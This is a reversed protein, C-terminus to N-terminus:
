TRLYTAQLLRLMLEIRAQPPTLPGASPLASPKAGMEDVLVGGWVCRTSRLVAVGAAQARHLAAELARHVSANGTGAVVIGQVGAAVLADVVHGDAGAGSTVIEVWPWTATAFPESGMAALGAIPATGASSLASPWDRYRHLRGAVLAAVPGGDGADFADLRHSHVKRLDAGAFVRGGILALVGSALPDRALTVADLLNQPGDAQLSTAPRMAATLVVPKDKALVVRHLFYATEELTDTGHTIVIGAVEPRTLHATGRAALRCWIAFDMDKSDVQAVQEAEVSWAALAPVADVLSQVSRQAATYGLSDTASAATGAITGGTGLIVVTGATAAAGAVAGSKELGSQAIGSAM